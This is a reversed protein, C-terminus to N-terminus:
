LLVVRDEGRTPTCSPADSVPFQVSVFVHSLEHSAVNNECGMLRGDRASALVGTFTSKRYIHM